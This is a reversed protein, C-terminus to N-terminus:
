RKSLEVFGGPISNLFLWLSFFDFPQHVSDTLLLFRVLYHNQYDASNSAFTDPSILKPEQPKKEKKAGKPGGKKTGKDDKKMKKADKEDLNRLGRQEAVAVTFLSLCAVVVSLKM